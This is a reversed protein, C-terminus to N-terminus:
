EEEDESTEATIQTLIEEATMSTNVTYEGPVLANNKQYFLTQIYFVYENKILGQNALEKGVDLASAGNEVTVLYDQGPEESMTEDSFVQLGLEYAQTSFKYVIMVILIIFVIKIIWGVIGISVKKVNM